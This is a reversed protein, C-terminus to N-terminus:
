QILVSDAELETLATEIKDWMKKGDEHQYHGYHLNTEPDHRYGDASYLVVDRDSKLVYGEGLVFECAEKLCRLMVADVDQWSGAPATWLVSDHMSNGVDVGRETALCIWYRLVEACNGQMPHNLARRLLHANHGSRVSLTPDLPVWLRFGLETEVYGNFARDEDNAAKWAEYVPYQRREREVFMEAEKKTVGLAKSLGSPTQGYQGALTVIKFKNRLDRHTSKTATYDCFGFDAAKVLYADRHLYNHWRKKDGSIAASIGYEANSMDRHQLVEGDFRPGLLSRIAKTANGINESTKPQSRSASGIFALMPTRNRADPGIPFKFDAKAISMFKKVQRYMEIEPFKDAYLSAMYEVVEKDDASAYKGNFAWSDEDFGMRRVWATFNAKPQHPDGKKDFTFIGLNYESEFNRVVRRQLEASNARLREYVPVNVPTGNWEMCVVGKMCRGRHLAQPLNHIRPVLKLALDKTMRVDGGCYDVIHRMEENSFPFGAIIRERSAEKEAEPTTDWIGSAHCAELLSTELKEGQNDLLGNTLNRYEVWLDIVNVPLGWGASLAFGLDASASYVLHVAEPGFPMPNSVSEGEHWVRSVTNGTHLEIGAMCVPSVHWGPVVVYESDWVWVEKFM